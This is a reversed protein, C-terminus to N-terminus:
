VFIGVVVVVVLVLPRRSLQKIKFSIMSLVERKLAINCREDLMRKSTFRVFGIRWSEFLGGLLRTQRSFCVVMAVILNARKRMTFM